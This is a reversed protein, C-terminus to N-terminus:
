FPKFVMLVVIVVIAVAEYWRAYRVAPNAFAERLEPTIVGQKRADAMALDFRRSGPLYAVPAVILPFSLALILSVVMWGTTLGLFRYGQLGATVLGAVIVAPGSLMVLREFPSAAQSLAFAIDPDDARSASRILSWRGVLGTVLAFAVALHLLKFLDSWDM